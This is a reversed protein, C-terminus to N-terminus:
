KKTSNAKPATTKNTSVTLNGQQKQEAVKRALEDEKEKQEKLKEEEAKKVAAEEDEKKQEELKAKEEADLLKKAEAQREKEADERVRRREERAERTHDAEEKALRTWYKQCFHAADFRERNDYSDMSLFDTMSTALSRCEAAQWDGLVSEGCVDKMYEGVVTKDGSSAKVIAAVVKPCSKKFDSPGCDKDGEAATDNCELFESAEDSWETEVQSLTRAVVDPRMAAKAELLGSNGGAAAGKGRVFRAAASGAALLTSVILLAARTMM